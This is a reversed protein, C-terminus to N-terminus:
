SQSDVSNSVNFGRGKTKAQRRKDYLYPSVETAKKKGLLTAIETPTCGLSNLFRAAEAIKLSGNKKSFKKRIEIQVLIRLYKWDDSKNSRTEIGKKM